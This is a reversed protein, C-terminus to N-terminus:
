ARVSSQAASVAQNGADPFAAQRIQIGDVGARTFSM